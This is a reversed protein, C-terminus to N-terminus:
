TGCHECLARGVPCHKRCLGSSKPPFRDNRIALEMRQVRPLFEMWIEPVQSRTFTQADIAGSQLWIYATTITDVSPFASFGIGAFLKLQPVDEQRKGTKWDGVFMKEGSPAKLSVDLVGRVWVDPAFWETTKYDATLALKLEAYRKGPRAKIKDALPQYQVLTEPLPADKTLYGDLASHVRKGWMSAASDSDKVQKTVRMLKYQLPCNEFQKLATYSWAFPKAM